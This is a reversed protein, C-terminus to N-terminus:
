PLLVTLLPRSSTLCKSAFHLIPHDFLESVGSSGSFSQHSGLRSNAVIRALVQIPPSVIQPPAGAVASVTAPQVM